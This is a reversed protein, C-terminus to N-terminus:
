MFPRPGRETFIGIVTRGFYSINLRVSVEDIDLDYHAACFTTKFRLTFEVVFWLIISLKQSQNYLNYMDLM